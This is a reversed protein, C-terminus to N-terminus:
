ALSPVHLVVAVTDVAVHVTVTNSVKVEPAISVVPSVIQLPPSGTVIPLSM